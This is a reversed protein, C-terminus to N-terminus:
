GGAEDGLVRGKMELTVKWGLLASLINTNKETEARKIPAMTRWMDSKSTPKTKNMKSM